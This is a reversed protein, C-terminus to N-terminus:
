HKRNVFIPNRINDKNGNPTMTAMMASATGVGMVIAKSDWWGNHRQQGNGSSSDMAIKGCGDMTIAAAMLIGNCGIAGRRQQRCNDEAWQATWRAAAAGNGM